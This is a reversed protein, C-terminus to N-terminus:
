DHNQFVIRANSDRSLLNGDVDYYRVEKIRLMNVRNAGFSVWSNKVSDETNYGSLSNLGSPHVVLTSSGGFSGWTQGQGNKVFFGVNGPVIAMVKTWSVTEAVQSLKDERVTRQNVVDDFVNINYQMGGAEFGDDDRYNWSAQFSLADADAMPSMSTHFQPTDLETEPENLVAEWDEEIHVVPSSGEGTALSGPMTSVVAFSAASAILINKFSAFSRYKKM